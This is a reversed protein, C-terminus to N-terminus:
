VSGLQTRGNRVAPDGSANLVEFDITLAGDEGTRPGGARVTIQSPVLVMAALEAELRTIRLQPGATDAIVTAAAALSATGHLIPGPLGAAAAVVPDTHIPNWIRACESYVIAAVESIPLTVEVLPAVEAFPLPRDDHRAHTAAEPADTPVGLFISTMTTSVVPADHNDVTELAVVMRAGARTPAISLVSATTALEDGPRIARHLQISHGAHVGRTAEGPSLGSAVALRSLDLVAPWELCVPFIPHARLGGPHRADVYEPSHDGFGAAFAAIWRQDIEHRRPETSAGVLSGSLAM